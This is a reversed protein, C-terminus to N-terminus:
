FLVQMYFFVKNQFTNRHNESLMYKQFLYYQQDLYNGPNIRIGQAGNEMAAVALRSDFHIDAILPISIQGRIKKIAAAAEMDVVAVRIVECGGSERAMEGVSCSIGGAGNDTISSYIDMDRAEIIADPEHPTGM